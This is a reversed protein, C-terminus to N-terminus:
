VRARSNSSQTRREQAARRVDAIRKGYVGNAPGKNAGGKSRGKEHRDKNNEGKTGLFLHSPNVCLRNDCHHCVCMGDPIEGRSLMWAVRSAPACRGKWLFGGYGDTM